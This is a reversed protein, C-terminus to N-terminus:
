KREIKLLGSVASLRTATTMPATSLETVITPLQSARVTGAGSVTRMAVQKVSAKLFYSCSNRYIHILLKFFIKFTQM